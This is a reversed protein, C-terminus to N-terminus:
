KWFMSMTGGPPGAGLLPWEAGREGLGPLRSGAERRQIQRDQARCPFPGHTHPGPCRAERVPRPM